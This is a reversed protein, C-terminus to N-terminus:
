NEEPKQNKPDILISNNGGLYTLNKLQESQLLAVTKADAGNLVAIREAEALAINKIATAKANSDTITALAEQTAFYAKTTAEKFQKAYDEDHIDVTQIKASIIQIGHRKMIGTMRMRKDYVGQAHVNLRQIFDSFEIEERTDSKRKRESSLEEFTSEGVYDRVHGIVLTSLTNLWGETEFIANYPNTTVVQIAVNVDLPIRNKDEAGIIRIAYTTNKAYIFDTDDSRKFPKLEGETNEQFENWEFKYSYIRM